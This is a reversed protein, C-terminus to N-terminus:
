MVDWTFTENFHPNLTKKHIEGKKKTLKEKDPTIEGSSTFRPHCRIALGLACGILMPVFYLMYWSAHPTTYLQRFHMLHM